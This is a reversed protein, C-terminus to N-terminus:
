SKLGSDSPYRLREALPYSPTLATMQQEIKAPDLMLGRISVLAALGPFLALVIAYTVSGAILFINNDSIEQWARWAM